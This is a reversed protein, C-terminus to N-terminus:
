YESFRTSGGSKKTISKGPDKWQDADKGFERKVWNLNRPLKLSFHM